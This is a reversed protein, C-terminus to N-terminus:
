PLTAASAPAPPTSAADAASASTSATSVATSGAAPAAQQELVSLRDVVTELLKLMLLSEMSTDGNGSSLSMLSSYDSGDDASGTDDGLGSLGLTSQNMQLELLKAFDLSGLENDAVSSPRTASSGGVSSVGSAQPTLAQLWLDDLSSIGM